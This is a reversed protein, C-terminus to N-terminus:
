KISLTFAAKKFRWPSSLHTKTHTKNEHANEVNTKTTVNVLTCSWVFLIEGILRLFIAVGEVLAHRSRNEGALFIKSRQQVKFLGQIMIKNFFLIEFTLESIPAPFFELLLLVLNEQM